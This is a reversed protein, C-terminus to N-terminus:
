PVLISFRQVLTKKSLVHHHPNYYLLFPLTGLTCRMAWTGNSGNNRSKVSFFDVKQYRYSVRLWVNGKGISMGLTVRYCYPLM